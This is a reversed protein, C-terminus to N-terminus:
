LADNAKLSFQYDEDETAGFWRLKKRLTVVSGVIIMSPGTFEAKRVKKALTEITGTVIRQDPHTGKDVVAAPTDKDAGHSILGQMLQELSGLGMYFVVTQGPQILLKWDLELVGNKGHATVFICAQAHDRHTLPIGSYTSCGSAATIGPVVQFPINNEALLDMEEGGRGFIFPDGGKLRLVKKGKKALDVLLQSIDEQQMTHQAPMKGVYIREADRRVFSLIDDGILRDYVVVDARQMLRLARFTLLDPDGPGAGVLFVAGSKEYDKQAVADDLESLLRSAAKDEDGTMFLDGVPGDIVQEWFSRRNKAGKLQKMVTDRFSGAFKALQGYTAPLIAEIRARLIRALIPANGGSSIAVVLPARDIVSPTIFDCYETVDAVNALVNQQKAMNYLRINEADDKCAGYAIIAGKLDNVKPKRTLHVLNENDLLRDFEGSLNEAFLHVKAGARLSAEARRAAITESGSVVVKRNKVDLFIPLHDM